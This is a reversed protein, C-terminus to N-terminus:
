RRETHLLGFYFLISVLFPSLCKSAVLWGADRSWMHWFHQSLFFLSILLFVLISITGPKRMRQSYVFRLLASLGIAVPIAAVTTIILGFAVATPIIEHFQSPGGALFVWVPLSEAVLKFFPWTAVGIFRYAVFTAVGVIASFLLSVSAHRRIVKLAWAIKYAGGFEM